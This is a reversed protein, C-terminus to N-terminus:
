QGRKGGIVTPDRMRELADNFEQGVAAGSVVIPPAHLLCAELNAPWEQLGVVVLHFAGALKGGTAPASDDFVSADARPPAVSLVVIVGCLSPREIVAM